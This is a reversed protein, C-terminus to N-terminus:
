VSPAVVEVKIRDPDEFFLAYHDPGGAHPHRDPYLPPHGRARLAETLVDVQARSSAWLAVHNLGPRRRHFPIDCFSADAQVFVLYCSDARWSFGSDWSQYAEFGLEALLWGWLERTRELESVYIEVHHLGKMAPWTAQAGMAGCDPMRLWAQSLRWDEGEYSRIPEIVM